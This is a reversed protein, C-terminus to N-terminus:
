IVQHLRRGMAAGSAGFAACLRSFDRDREYERAILVAPMLLNAAFHNAEQEIPDLPPREGPEPAEVSAHRCFLSSQGGQHLVWHGLEHAITFRRRTPWERAEAANVWIEGRSPLLLGSITQGDSLEPCGPASTMEEVERVLLSCHSDAIDEVPVPLRRGDWIWEPVGSLFQEAREAIEEM